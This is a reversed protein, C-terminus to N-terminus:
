GRSSTLAALGTVQHVLHIQEGVPFRAQAGAPLEYKPTAGKRGIWPNAVFYRGPADPAAGLFDIGAVVVAHGQMAGVSCTLMVPGRTMMERFEKITPYAKEKIGLRRAVMSIEPDRIGDNYQGPVIRRAMGGVKRSVERQSKGPNAWGFMIELCARWCIDPNAQAVLPVNWTSRYFAM